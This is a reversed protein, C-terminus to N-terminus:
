RVLSVEGSAPVEVEVLVPGSPTSAHFSTWVLTYRGPELGGFTVRETRPQYVMQAWSSRLLEMPPNRVARVAGRLLWLAYGPQPAVRASITGMGPVLGFDQRFQAGAIETILAPPDESTQEFGPSAVVFRYPGPPVEMAYSGDANTVASVTEGRDAHVGSIEVGSAPRGSPLWARGSLQVGPKLVLEIGQASDPTVTRTATRRGKKAVLKLEKQLAPRGLAFDGEAGSLVSQECADCSVVADSVPGGGEDRVVGTMLPARKLEFDGLDPTNPRPQSLPEFGPAEVRVVVREDSAPLALEFRGDSSTVEFEDIRFSRLPQGDGLVRGRFVPQRTVVLRVPDGGAVALTRDRQEFGRQAVRLSYTAKPRLPALSFSGSGDTVAPEVGRPTVAVHVSAVPAGQTDVVQGTIAAGPKLAAAIRVLQGDELTVPQRDSPLFEPHSAILTYRDPPLGRMLVIGDAGSPRDSRFNGQEHFLVVNAGEVRRGDVTVTVEAGAKPELQLEVDSRPAQVQVEGGGWDSHHGQLTYLGPSPVRARFHGEADSIVSDGTPIVLVAVGPAPRGYEDSVRGSIVTGRALTLEVSVDQGQVVVPVSTPEFGEASGRLQYDGRGLPGLSGLEGTKLKLRTILEHNRSMLELTPDSVPQGAEDIVSVTVRGGRDLVLTLQTLAGALTVRAPAAALAGAVASVMLPDPYLADIVAVGDKAAVERSVHNGQLLVVGDIPHGESILRVELRRPGLLTLTVPPLGAEVELRSVPLLTPSSAEVFFPGEGVGDFRFTGDAATRAELVHALRKPVARVVAAVVPQGAEDRVRGTISRPAPLFLEVPDGPAAREKVGEGYGEAQGWITFSTGALHEFRFRGAEDSRTSLAATLEGRHSGMLGSIARATEHARCSLWPEGCVGCRRNTLTPQGSAALSIQAGAIPAGAPDRVTGTIALGPQADPATVAIPSFDAEAVEAEASLPPGSQRASGALWPAWQWLGAATAALVALLILWRRRM